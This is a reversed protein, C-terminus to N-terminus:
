ATRVRAVARLREALVRTVPSRSSQAQARRSQRAARVLARRAAQGRMDDIRSQALGHSMSQYM